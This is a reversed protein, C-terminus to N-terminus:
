LRSTPCATGAFLLLLLMNVDCILLGRPSSATLLFRPEGPSRCCRCSSSCCRSASTRGSFCLRSTLGRAAAAAALAVVWEGLLRCVHDARPVDTSLLFDRKRHIFGVTFSRSVYSWWRPPWPERRIACGRWKSWRAWWSCPATPGVFFLCDVVLIIM